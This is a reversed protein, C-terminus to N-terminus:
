QDFLGKSNAFRTHLDLFGVKKFHAYEQLCVSKHENAVCECIEQVENVTWNSEAFRKILTLAIETKSILDKDFFNRSPYNCKKKSLNNSPTNESPM